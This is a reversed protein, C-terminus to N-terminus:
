LDMFPCEPCKLTDIGWKSPKSGVLKLTAVEKCETKVLNEVKQPGERVSNAFNSLNM